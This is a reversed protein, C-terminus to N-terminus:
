RIWTVGLAIATVVHVLVAILATIAVPRHAVHWYRFVRQTADLMRAQQSLAMQRRALRLVLALVRRDVHAGQRKAGRLGRRLARAARFREVDDRVMRGLTRLPGLGAYPRTDVALLSSVVETAIGATSAIYRQLTTREGEVEELSLELGSRSRPIRAYLYKGVIGSLCVVLM